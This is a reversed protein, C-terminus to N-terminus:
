ALIFSFAYVAFHVIRRHLADMVFEQDFADLITKCEGRFQQGGPGLIGLLIDREAEEGTAETNM